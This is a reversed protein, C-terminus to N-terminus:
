QRPAAWRAHMFLAAKEECAYVLALLCAAACLFHWDPSDDEVAVLKSSNMLGLIYCHSYLGLRLPQLPGDKTVHIRNHLMLSAFPM